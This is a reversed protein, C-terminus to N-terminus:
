QKRSAFIQELNNQNEIFLSYEQWTFGLWEHLSLNTNSSHWESIFDDIRNIPDTIKDNLVQEVFNSM